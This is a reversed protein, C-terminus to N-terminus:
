RKHNEAYRGAGKVEQIADFWCYATTVLCNLFLVVGLVKIATSDLIDVGSGKREAIGGIRGASEYGRGM